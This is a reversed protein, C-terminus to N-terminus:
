RVLLERARRRVLQTSGTRSLRELEPRARQTRGAALHLQALALAAADRNAANSSRTLDSLAREAEADDGQRMAEAARRWGSIERKAAASEHPAGNSRVVPRKSEKTPTAVGPRASGAPSSLHMRFGSARDAEFTFEILRPGAVTTREDGMVVTVSQGEAIEFEMGPTVEIMVGDREIRPPTHPLPAPAEVEAGAQAVAREPAGQEEGVQGVPSEPLRTQDAVADGVDDQPEVSRTIVFILAAAGVRGLAVDLHLGAFRSAERHGGAVRIRRLTRQRAATVEADSPAGERWTERIRQLRESESLTRM